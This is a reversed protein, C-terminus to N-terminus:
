IELRETIDVIKNILSAIKKKIEYITMAIPVLSKDVETEKNEQKSDERMMPKLRNYLNDIESHLTEEANRLCDIQKSVQGQKTEGEM